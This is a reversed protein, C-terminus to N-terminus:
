RSSPFRHDNPTATSTLIRGAEPMGEVASVSALGDQFDIVDITKGTSPLVSRFEHDRKARVAMSELRSPFAPQDQLLAQQGYRALKM